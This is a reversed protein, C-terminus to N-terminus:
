IAGNEALMCLEQQSLGLEGCFIEQNHEGILPARRSIRWPSGNYIAAEGPYVFSRGLEPHEVQKWFGRDHLHADDLLAEPSRVAGWTFGRRQAAHYVEEAPLNAIFNAVVDEIIHDKNAEIVKPDQYKPDKLDGALGYSDMLEALEKVYRPNLRGAVLATVYTGDKSRFQTRPTPGPAHHRGTHRQVVENRYIYNAIAAETTLACADHISADIYQGQGTVTRYVLAAMIAMYAFHCGMHWANGGGPAIPPAGPVDVEDYGCSAMEGGAAMHLLDSTKYDRWPGTQGFPTLACLILGSNEKRLSEYALGLAALFGPPFTELIVDATAALRRFLHRGDATQLNLTIGRKSTNYHWFSLSREPHPLDDLFPGVRRTAEGGPPEIKIVDAGLDGMLKGCFQGKEDALELIRLGVLPGPPTQADTM